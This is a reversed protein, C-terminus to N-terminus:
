VYAILPAKSMPIRHPPSRRRPHLQDTFHFDPSPVNQTKTPANPKRLSVHSRPLQTTVLHSKFRNTSHPRRPM